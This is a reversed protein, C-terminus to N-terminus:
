IHKSSACKCCFNYNDKTRDQSPTLFALLTQPERKKKTKDIKIKTTISTIKPDRKKIKNDGKM